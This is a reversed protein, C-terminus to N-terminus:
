IIARKAFLSSASHPVNSHKIADSQIFFVFRQLGSDKVKTSSDHPDPSIGERTFRRDHLGSSWLESRCYWCLLWAHRYPAQLYLTIPPVIVVASGWLGQRLFSHGLFGDLDVAAGGRRTVALDITFFPTNM